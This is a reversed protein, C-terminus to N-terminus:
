VHAVDCTDKVRDLLATGLSRIFQQREEIRFQSPKRRGFHRPFLRSM